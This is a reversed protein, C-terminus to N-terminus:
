PAPRKTLTSQVKYGKLDQLFPTLWASSVGGKIEEAALSRAVEYSQYLDKLITIQSKHSEVLNSVDQSWRNVRPEMEIRLNFEEVTSPLYRESGEESEALGLVPVGQDTYEVPLFAM